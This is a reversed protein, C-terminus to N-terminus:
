LGFFLTSFTAETSYCYYLSAALTQAALEVFFFTKFM